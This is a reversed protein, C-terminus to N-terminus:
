CRQMDLFCFLFFPSLLLGAQVIKSAAQERSRQKTPRYRAGTNGAVRWGAGRFKGGDRGAKAEVAAKSWSDWRKMGGWEGTGVV